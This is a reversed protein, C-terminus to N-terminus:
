TVLMRCSLVLSLSQDSRDHTKHALFLDVSPQELSCCRRRNCRYDASSTPGSIARYNLQGSQARDVTEMSANAILPNAIDVHGDPCSCSVRRVAGAAIGHRGCDCVEFSSLYYGQGLQGHLVARGAVTVNVPLAAEMAMPSIAAINGPSKHLPLEPQAM